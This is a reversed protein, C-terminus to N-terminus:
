AEITNMASAATREAVLTKCMRRTGTPADDEGHGDPEHGDEAEPVYPGRGAPAEGPAGRFPDAVSV